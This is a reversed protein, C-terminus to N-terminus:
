GPTAAKPYFALVKWTDSAGGISVAVGDHGNVRFAPAAAGVGPGASPKSTPAPDQVAFPALLLACALLTKRMRGDSGLAGRRDLGGLRDPRRM